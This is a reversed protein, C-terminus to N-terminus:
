LVVMLQACGTLVALCGFVAPNQQKFIPHIKCNDRSPREKLKQEIEGQM